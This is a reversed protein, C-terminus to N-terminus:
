TSMTLPSGSIRRGLARNSYKRIRASFEYADASDPCDITVRILLDQYLTGGYLWSGSAQIVDVTTARFKGVLEKHTELFKEREILRGDNYNLPLLIEFRKLKM